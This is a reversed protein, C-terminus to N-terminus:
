AQQGRGFDLSHLSELDIEPFSRFYADAHFLDGSPRSHTLAVCKIGAAHSARVGAPADEISLCESAQLANGSCVPLRQLRELACVYIGPDPKSRETDEASCVAAFADRLNLKGLLYEIEHRMSGSAIVLPYRGAAHRM